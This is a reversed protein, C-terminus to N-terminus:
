FTKLTSRLFRKKKRDLVKKFCLLAKKSPFQKRVVELECGKARQSRDFEGSSRRYLRNERPKSPFCKSGWVKGWGVLCPDSSLFNM